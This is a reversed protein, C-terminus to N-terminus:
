KLKYVGPIVRPFQELPKWLIVKDRVINMFKSIDKWGVTTDIGAAVIEAEKVLIAVEKALEEYLAQQGMEKSYAVLKQLKALRKKATGVQVKTLKSKVFKLYLTAGIEKKGKAAVKFEVGTGTPTMHSVSYGFGSSTLSTSAGGLLWSNGINDTITFENM